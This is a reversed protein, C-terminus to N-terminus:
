KSGANAESMEILTSLSPSQSRYSLATIDTTAIPVIYDLVDATYDIDQERKENKADTDDSSLYSDKNVDDYLRHRKM